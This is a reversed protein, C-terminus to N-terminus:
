RAGFRKFVADVQEPSAIRGAQVDELGRAIGAMIEHHERDSMRLCEVALRLVEERDQGTRVALSDVYSLQETNLNVTIQQM